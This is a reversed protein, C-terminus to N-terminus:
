QAAPRRVYYHLGHKPHSFAVPFAGNVKRDTTFRGRSDLPVPDGDLSVSWGPLAQGAVKIDEGDSFGGSQPESM